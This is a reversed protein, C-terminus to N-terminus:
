SAMEFMQWKILMFNLKNTTENVQWKMCKGNCVNAMEYM